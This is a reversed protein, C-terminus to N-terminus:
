AALSPNPGALRCGPNFPRGRALSHGQAGRHGRTAARACRLTNRLNRSFTRKQISVCDGGQVNSIVFAWGVAPSSIGAAPPPNGTRIIFSIVWDHTSPLHEGAYAIVSSKNWTVRIVVNQVLTQDLISVVDILSYDDIFQHLREVDDLTAALVDLIQRRSLEARDDIAFFRHQGDIVPRTRRKRPAATLHRAFTNTQRHEAATKRLDQYFSWFHKQGLDGEGNTWEQLHASLQARLFQAYLRAQSDYCAVAANSFVEQVKPEIWVVQDTGANLSIWFGSHDRETAM